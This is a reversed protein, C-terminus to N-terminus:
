IEVLQDQDIAKESRRNKRAEQIFKSTTKSNFKLIMVIM